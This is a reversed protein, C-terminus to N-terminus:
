ILQLFDLDLIVHIDPFRSRLMSHHKLPAFLVAIEEHEFHLDKPVRWEREHHFDHTGPNIKNVFPRIEHPITAGSLLDERVYLAPSGGKEYIWRKLFGLGYQSYNKSHRHLGRISLDALCVSKTGLKKGYYGTQSAKLCKDELIRLMKDLTNSEASKILHTVMITLDFNETAEKIYFDRCEEIDQLAHPVSSKLTRKVQEILDEHRYFCPECINGFVDVFGSGSSVLCDESHYLFCHDCQIYDSEHAECVWIKCSSCIEDSVCDLHAKQSCYEDDCEVFNDHDEHEFRVIKSCYPCVNEHSRPVIISSHLEECSHCFRVQIDSCYHSSYLILEGGCGPCREKEAAELHYLNNLRKFETKM